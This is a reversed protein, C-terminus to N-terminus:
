VEVGIKREFYYADFAAPGAPQNYMILLQTIAMGKM